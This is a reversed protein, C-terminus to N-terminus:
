RASADLLRPFLQRTCSFKTAPLDQVGTARVVGHDEHLVGEVASHPCAPARFQLVVHPTGVIGQM